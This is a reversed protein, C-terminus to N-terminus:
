KGEAGDGQIEVWRTGGSGGAASRDDRAIWRKLSTKDCAGAKAEQMLKEEGSISGVLPSGSLSYEVVGRDIKETVITGNGHLHAATM